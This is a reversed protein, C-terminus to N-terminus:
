QLQSDMWTMRAIIFDHLAQVQGEWTAVTPGVIRIGGGMGMMTTPYVHSVPWKAFDRAISDAPLQAALDDLRKEVATNSLLGTGMRLAKWRTKVQNQFAMDSMLKPFWSNVNRSPLSNAAVGRYQWGSDNTATPAPAITNAGGVGLAFNYDWLPGGKLLAGRDKSFFASRVYADVNRTLESIIFYDAFSAVDIYQGYNGLPTTFLTNHFSQVYNTIWALQETAAPLPVPDTLECDTWCTVGTSTKCTLHPAAKDTALQDFKFIYGGTINPESTDAAALKKLPVRHGGINITETVWYIGVYNTDAMPGAAFNIYVEAFKTHPANLGMDRGLDYTFPNRLLARDYYPPILAWDADATMGLVAYKADADNNDRFEVKYPKQDFNSSSQGRLHFASRTAVTPLNALSATGDVPEFIMVVADIYLTKDTSPGKGYDDLLIIPLKSTVDFTRAIYLATSVLGGAEGGVFPTARLQTTTTLSLATGGYLKSSSTPLTGDTTYRIEAGSISTSLGVSLTGKFSQSPVSFAVDGMLTGASGTSGGSGSSAGGSGGSATSGGSSTSGGSATKGGSGNGSGGSATSGGSSSSGGSATKGGSGSNGGSSSSGGSGNNGGSSSSGGSGSGGSGAGSPPGMCSAAALVGALILGFSGRRSPRRAHITM